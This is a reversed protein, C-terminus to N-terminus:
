PSECSANGPPSPFQTIVCFGNIIHFLVKNLNTLILYKMLKLIRRFIEVINGSKRLWSDRISRNPTSSANNSLIMSTSIIHEIIMTYLERQTYSM